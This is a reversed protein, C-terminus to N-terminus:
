GLPFSCWLSCFSNTGLTPEFFVTGDSMVNIRGLLNGCITACLLSGAPRYGVPLALVGTGMTGGGVLGQMHVVGGAKTYRAVAFGGGYNAWSNLLTATVWRYQQARSLEDLRTEVSRVWEPFAESPDIARRGTV